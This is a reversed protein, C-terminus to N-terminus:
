ELAERDAPAHEALRLGTGKRMLIATGKETSLTEAQFEPFQKVWTAVIHREDARAADDLVIVAGESLRPYLVPLAPYRVLYDLHAPPGDVFLLDIAPLASVVAPDYWKVTRGDCEFDRLPAHIVRAHLDLGHTRLERRTEAAFSADHDLSLVQGGGLRKLCYASVLTSLGSGCEVIVRPRHRMVLSALLGAQDASIRWDGFAPLPAAPQLVANLSIAAELQRHM